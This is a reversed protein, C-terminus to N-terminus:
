FNQCMLTPFDKQNQSNQKKILVVDDSCAEAAVASSRRKETNESSFVQARPVLNRLTRMTRVIYSMKCQNIRAFTGTHQWRNHKEKLYKFVGNWRRTGSLKVAMHYHKHKNDSHNELCAAWQIIKATSKGSDFAELVCKSFSDCYPFRTM